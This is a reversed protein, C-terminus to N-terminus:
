GRRRRRALLALTLLLAGLFWLPLSLREIMAGAACGVYPEEAENCSDTRHLYARDREGIDALAFRELMLDLAMAEADLRGQYRYLYVGRDAMERLPACWTSPAEVGLEEYSVCQSMWYDASEYCRSRSFIDHELSSRGFLLQLTDSSSEAFAADLAARYAAGDTPNAEFRAFPHSAPAYGQEGTDPFAVWLTLDLPEAATVVQGTLRLPYMAHTADLVFRVPDIPKSPDADAAVSAVFFYQDETEYDAIASAAASSVAYGEQHLWGVLDDGQSASLVSYDLQGVQGTEWVSVQAGASSKEGGNQSDGATGPGCGEEHDDRPICYEIFVPATILELQHFLEVSSPEINPRVPFPVVWAARGPERSFVPQIHVEWSGQRLWVLARQATARVELSSATREPFPMGDALAPSSSLAILAAAAIAARRPRRARM